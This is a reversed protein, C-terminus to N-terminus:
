CSHRRAMIFHSHLNKVFSSVSRGHSGAIGSIPMCEFSEEDSQLFVQEYLYIAVKSVVTLFYFPISCLFYLPPFLFLPFPLTFPHLCPLTSSPIYPFIALLLSSNFIWISIQVFVCTVYLNFAPVVIFAVCINFSKGCWSHVWLVDYTITKSKIVRLFQHCYSTVSFVM